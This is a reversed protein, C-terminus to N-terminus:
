DAMCLIACRQQQNRVSLQRTKWKASKWSLQEARKESNAEFLQCGLASEIQRAHFKITCPLELRPLRRLPHSCVSQVRNGGQIRNLSDIRHYLANNQRGVEKGPANRSSRHSPPKPMKLPESPVRNIQKDFYSVIHPSISDLRLVVNRQSIESFHTRRTRIVPTGFQSRLRSNALQLALSRARGRLVIRKRDVPVPLTILMERFVAVKERGPLRFAFVILLRRTKGRTKQKSRASEGEACKIWEAARCIWYFPFRM